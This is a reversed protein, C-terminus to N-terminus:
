SAGPVIVGRPSGRMMEFFSEIRHYNVGLDGTGDRSKSRMEVLSADNGDPRVAIVFDDKFRFLWSTAVGEITHAAPDRYTITWNPVEGAIIEAKRYVEDPTGDLRLPALKAYGGFARQVAGTAPNYAMSRHPNPQLQQAHVFAPPNQTDTTIDNILPYRHNAFVVATPVVVILGFILAIVAQALAGRARISFAMVIFALIALAIALAAFLLGLVFLMFGFLPATFAFHAAVIGAAAVSIAVLADLMALWALVM